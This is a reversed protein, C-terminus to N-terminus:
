AAAGTRAARAAELSAPVQGPTCVARACALLDPHVADAEGAGEDHMGGILFCRGVAADRGARIDRARDGALLSAGVDLGLEAAARRILGGAPKRCDCRLRYREVEADPLHPCHYVGALAVGHGALMACMHATLRRYDDDGYYGRALGSQNTVVVLAHGHAALLALAEIAGPLWEFDEVRGVYGRDVNLVGDRDLFAARRLM